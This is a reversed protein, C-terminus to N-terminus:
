GSVFRRVRGIWTERIPAEPVPSLEEDRIVLSPNVSTLMRAAEEHGHAVLYNWATLMSRRSGHNDAAVLDALGHALLERARRGRTTPRTVATADVQLKVGVRRWERMMEPSCADYREPHAVIPVVGASTIQKLVHTASDAIVSYRFEVLYYRSGALSFRRDGIALVPLPEDLMIEFGLHLRPPEPARAVLELFAAARRTIHREGHHEMEGSSIHPTLVVAEVGEDGMQRLVGVSRDLSRSGDDLGVLLHSHIDIM